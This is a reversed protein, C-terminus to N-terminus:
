RQATTVEPSKREWIQLDDCSFPWRPLEVRTTLRFNTELYQQFLKGGTEGFPCCRTTQGFWEGVYAIVNGRFLRVAHYAMLNGGPGSSSPIMRRSVELGEERKRKRTQSTPPSSPTPPTALSKSVDSKSSSDQKEEDQTEKTEKPPFCLFLTRSSHDLVKGAGGQAVSIFSKANESGMWHYINTDENQNTPVLDYCKIDIGNERLCLGWYGTGAGIEVVGKPSKDKIVQLATPCPIAWAYTKRIPIIDNKM